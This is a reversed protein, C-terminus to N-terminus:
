SADPDVLGRKIAWEFHREHLEDKLQQEIARRDEGRRLAEHWSCEFYEECTCLYPLYDDLKDDYHCM